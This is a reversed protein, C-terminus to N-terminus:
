SLPRKSLFEYLTVPDEVGFIQCAYGKPAIKGLLGQLVKKPGVEVFLDVGADLMKQIIQYWLVPKCIQQGMIEKIREPDSEADGTVNLLVTGTPAAFTVPALVEKFDDRAKLMLASHWAGSVNLPVVRARAKTLAVSAAEVAVPEGTIVIQNLANYNAVSCIGNNDMGTLIRNVEEITLGIVAKMIGAHAMAEREMLEGRANVLKITDNIGIIKCAHLASYEGLSHGAAFDAKFGENELAMLGCLNILTISPQLNVTQTLEEIPGEFCLKKLPKGTIEEALDFLERCFPFRRYLEVGMGVYQSGQGPFIVASKGMLM